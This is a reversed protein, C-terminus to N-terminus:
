PVLPKLYRRIDCGDSLRIVMISISLALDRIMSVSHHMYANFVYTMMPESLPKDGTQCWAMIQVLATMKDIPCKPVFKLSIKILIWVNGKLFICKFIDGAFHCVNQRQRLTNVAFGGWYVMEKCFYFNGNHIYSQALIMKDGCHCKRYQYSPMKM